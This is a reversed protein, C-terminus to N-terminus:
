LERPRVGLEALRAPEGLYAGQDVLQQQVERIPVGHASVDAKAGLSAAVGAAEGLTMCRSMGRILGPPETCVAKGSANLLGRAGKPIMIGFPIEFGYPPEGPRKHPCRGIVDPWERGSEVDEKTLQAEAEILRSRRQGWDEATAIVVAQEFGPLHKRLFEATKHCMRRGEMEAKTFNRVDVGEFYLYNSNITVTGDGKVGYMGFANLAYWDGDKESYEGREIADNWPKFQKGGHHPFFFFGHEDWNRAFTEYDKVGDSDNPFSDAHEGIWRVARELDVNGLRFLLSGGSAVSRCPAGAYYAIDSEGTADIVNKASAAQRGSKSEVIVGTLRDGAEMVGVSLAHLLVQVGAERMLDALVLKMIEPDFCIGPQEPRHWGPRTGGEAVLRDVIERPIGKVVDRNEITMFSNGINGMLGATAIGGLVGNREVLLTRAGNRAASIAAACGSVGGGCVIVNADYAVPTERASETYMRM